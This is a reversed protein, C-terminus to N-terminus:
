VTMEKELPSKRDVNILCGEYIDDEYMFAIEQNKDLDQQVKLFTGNPLLISIKNTKANRRIDFTSVGFASKAETLSLFTMNSM